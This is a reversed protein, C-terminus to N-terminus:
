TFSSAKPMPPNLEARREAQAYDAGVQNIMAAFVFTIMKDANEQKVNNKCRNISPM